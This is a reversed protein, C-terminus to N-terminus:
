ESKIVELALAKYEEGLRNKTKCLAKGSKSSKAAETAKHLLTETMYDKYQESLETLTDKSMATNEEYMTPLIAPASLYPNITAVIQSHLSLIASLGDLAFKQTQVPIIVDAAATFANILLVGLSPLCDIFVYDFDKVVDESLIRKLITERALANYMSREANALNIDSPIYYLNNLENYRISDNVDNSNIVSSECLTLILQTMTPKGDPVFGLYASLNAQSDLDVLLVKKNHVLSLAAGLNMATTTKGVGGKQNAIAIIKSM